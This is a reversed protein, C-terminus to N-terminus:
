MSGVDVKDKNHYKLPVIWLMVFFMIKIGICIFLYFIGLISEEKHNWWLVCNCIFVFSGLFRSIKYGLIIVIGAIM